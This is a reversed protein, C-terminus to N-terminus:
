NMRDQELCSLFVVAALTLVRASYLRCSPQLTFRRWHLGSLGAPLYAKDVARGTPANPNHM